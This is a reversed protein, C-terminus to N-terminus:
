GEFSNSLAGCISCFGCGLTPLIPVFVISLVSLGLAVYGLILGVQALGRGGIRGGSRDIDGLAAHGFGVAVVSGIIPLLVWGLIGMILSVLAM